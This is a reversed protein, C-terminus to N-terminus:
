QQQQQQASMEAVSEVGDIPYGLPSAMPSFTSEIQNFLLGVDARLVHLYQAIGRGLIDDVSATDTERCLREVMTMLPSSKSDSETIEMLARRVRTLSFRVSRPFTPNLLVFEVVRRPEITLSYHRAFPEAAECSRLVALWHVSDDDETISGGRLTDTQVKLLHATSDARELFMGMGIFSWAEGHTITSDGLGQFFHLGDRMQRFFEMADREAIDPLDPQALILYLRNIQEWM